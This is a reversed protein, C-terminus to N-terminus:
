ELRGSPLVYEVMARDRPNPRAHVPNGGKKDQSRALRQLDKSRHMGIHETKIRADLEVGSPKRRDAIM